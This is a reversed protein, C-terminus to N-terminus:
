GFMNIYKITIVWECNGLQITIARGIINYSIIVKFM